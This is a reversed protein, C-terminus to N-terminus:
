LVAEDGGSAELLAQRQEDAARGAAAPQGGGGRRRRRAAGGGLARRRQDGFPLRVCPQRKDLGRQGAGVASICALHLRAGAALEPEVSGLNTLLRPRSAPLRLAPVRGLEQRVAILGPSGRRARPRVEADGRGGHLRTAGGGGRRCYNLLESTVKV